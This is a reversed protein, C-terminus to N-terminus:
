HRGLYFSRSFYNLLSNNCNYTTNGESYTICSISSNFEFKNLLSFGRQCDWLKVNGDHGGTALINGKSIWAHSVLSDVRMTGHSTAFIPESPFRLDYVTVSSDSTEGLFLLNGRPCFSVSDMDFKKTNISMFTKLDQGLDMIRLIGDGRAQESSIGGTGAALM